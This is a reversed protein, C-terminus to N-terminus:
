KRAWVTESSKYFSFTLASFAFWRRFTLFIKKRRNKMTRNVPTFLGWLTAVRFYEYQKRQPWNHWDGISLTRHEVSIWRINRANIKISMLYTCLMKRSSNGQANQIKKLFFTHGEDSSYIHIYFWCCIFSLVFCQFM